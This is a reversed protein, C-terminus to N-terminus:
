IKSRLGAIENQLKILERAVRENELEIKIVRSELLTYLINSGPNNRVTKLKGNKTDLKAMFWKFLPIFLDKILIYFLLLIFGETGYGELVNPLKM